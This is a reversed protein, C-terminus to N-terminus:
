ACLVVESDTETNIKKLERLQRISRRDLENEAARAFLELVCDIDAVGIV